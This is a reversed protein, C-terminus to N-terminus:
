INEGEKNEEIFKFLNEFLEKLNQDQIKKSLLNILKLREVDNKPAIRLCDEGLLDIPTCNFIECVKEMTSKTLFSDGNEAKTITTRPLELKEALEKQSLGIKGRYMKLNNAM